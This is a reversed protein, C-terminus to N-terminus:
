PITAEVIVAVQKFDSPGAPGASRTLRVGLDLLGAVAVALGSVRNRLVGAALPLTAVVTPGTGGAGSPDTLVEVDYSRAADIVDVAVSVGVLTGNATLLGGTQSALVGPGMSLYQQVALVGHQGTYQLYYTSQGAPGPPGPPGPAGGGLRPVTFITL